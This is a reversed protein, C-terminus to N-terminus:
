AHLTAPLFYSYTVKSGDEPQLLLFYIVMTVWLMEM